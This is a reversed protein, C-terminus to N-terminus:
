GHNDSDEGGGRYRRLREPLTFAYTMFMETFFGIDQVEEAEPDEDEHAADNGLLRISGAWEALTPYLKATEVLKEIRKALTLKPDGDLAKTARELARRYGMGASGYAGRTENDVAELYAKAVPEPTHEPASIRTVEPFTSINVIVNKIIDAESGIVRGVQTEPVTTQILCKGFITVPLRCGECQTVFFVRKATVGDITADHGSLVRFTM